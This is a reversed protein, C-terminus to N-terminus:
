SEITLSILELVFTFCFANLEGHNSSALKQDDSSATTNLFAVLFTLFICSETETEKNGHAMRSMPCVYMICSFMLRIYPSHMFVSLVVAHLQEVHLCICM